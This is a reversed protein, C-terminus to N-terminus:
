YPFAISGHSLNFFAPVLGRPLLWRCDSHLARDVCIGLNRWSAGNEYSFASMTIGWLLAGRGGEEAVTSVAYAATAATTANHANEIRGVAETFAAATTESKASPPTPTAAPASTSSYAAGIVNSSTLKM